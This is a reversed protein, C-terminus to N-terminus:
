LFGKTMETTGLSGRLNRAEAKWTRQSVDGNKGRM